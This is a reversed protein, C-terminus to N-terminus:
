AKAKTVIEANINYKSKDKVGFYGFMSYISEIGAKGNEINRKTTQLRIYDIPDPITGRSIRKTCYKIAKNFTM